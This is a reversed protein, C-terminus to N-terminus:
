GVWLLRMREALCRTIVPYIMCDKSSVTAPSISPIVKVSLIGMM